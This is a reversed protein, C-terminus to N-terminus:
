ITVQQLLSELINALDNTHFADKRVAEDRLEQGIAPWLEPSTMLTFFKEHIDTSDQPDCLILKDSIEPVGGCRFALVPIGCCMAEAASRGWTDYDTPQVYIDASALLAPWKEAPLYEICDLNYNDKYRKVKDENGQIKSVNVFEAQFRNDLAKFFTPIGREKFHNLNVQMLVRPRRKLPGYHKQQFNSLMVGNPIHNVGWLGGPLVHVTSGPLQERAIKGLFESISIIAVAKSLVGHVAELRLPREALEIWFDGGIYVIYPKGSAALANAVAKIGPTQCFVGDCSKPIETGVTVTFRSRCSLSDAIATYTWGPPTVIHLHKKM